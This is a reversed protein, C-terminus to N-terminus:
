FNLWGSVMIRLQTNTDDGGPIPNDVVEVRAWIGEVGLKVRPIPSWILNLHITDQAQPATVVNGLDDKDTEAHGWSLTSRFGPSWRHTFALVTGWERITDLDGNTKLISGPNSTRMYRGIGDGGHVNVAVWDRGFVVATASAHLGWGFIDEDTDAGAGGDDVGIRRALGSLRLSYGAGTYRISGVVDPLGDIGNGAFSQEIRFVPALGPVAPEIFGGSEPNEASLAISLNPNPAFTYRVQAQRVLPLGVPGFFDLTEPYADLGVFNSHFQGILLGGLTGYAHRIRFVSSNSFTENGGTGFFDGEIHTRVEGWRSPTWTKFWLRSQRTHFRIHGERNDAASGELPIASAAFRDENQSRVDYLVDLKTYGGLQLSVTTGPLKYTWPKDGATVAKAPTAAIPQGDNRTTDALEDVRWQLQDLQAELDSLTEARAPPTLGTNATLLIGPLGFWAAFALGRVSHRSRYRRVTKRM